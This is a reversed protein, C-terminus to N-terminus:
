GPSRDKPRTRVMVAVIGFLIGAGMLLAVAADSADAMAEFLGIGILLIGVTGFAARITHAPM